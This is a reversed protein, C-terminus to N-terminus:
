NIKSSNQTKIKKDFWWRSLFEAIMTDKTSRNDRMARMKAKKNKTFLYKYSLTFNKFITDKMKLYNFKNSQQNKKYANELFSDGHYVGFEVYDGFLHNGFVLLLLHM